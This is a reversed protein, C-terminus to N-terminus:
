EQQSQEELKLEFEIKNQYSFLRIYIYGTPSKIDGFIAETEEPEIRNDEAQYNKAFPQYSLWVQVYEMIATPLDYQPDIVRVTLQYTKATDVKLYFFQEAKYTEKSILTDLTGPLTENLVMLDPNLLSGPVSDASHVENEYDVLESQGGDEDLYPDEDLKQAYWIQAQGDITMNMTLQKGNLEILVVNIESSAEDTLSLTKGSLTYTGSHITTAKENEVMFYEYNNMGFRMYGLDAIQATDEATTEEASEEELSLNKIETIEWLGNLVITDSGDEDGCSTLVLSTVILLFLILLIYKVQNM